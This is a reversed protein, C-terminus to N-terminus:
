LSKRSSDHGAVVNVHDRQGRRVVPVGDHGDSRRWPRCPCRRRSATRAVIQAFAARHAVGDLLVPADPLGAGPLARRAIEAEGALQHAVPADALDVGDFDAQGGAARRCRATRGGRRRVQIVIEPDARATPATSAPGCANSSASAVRSRRRGTSPSSRGDRRCRGTPGPCRVCRAPRIRASRHRNGRRVPMQFAAVVYRISQVKALPTLIITALASPAWRLPALQIPVSPQTQTSRPPNSVEGLAQCAVLDARVFDVQVARAIVDPIEQIADVRAPQGDRGGFHGVARGADAVQTMAMASPRFNCKSGSLSSNRVIGEALPRSPRALRSGQLRRM